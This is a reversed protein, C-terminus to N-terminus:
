TCCSLVRIGRTSGRRGTVREWPGNPHMVQGLVLELGLLRRDTRDRVRLAIEGSAQCDQRQNCRM